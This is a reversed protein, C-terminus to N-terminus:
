WEEGPGENLRDILRRDKKTPRGTGKQRYIGPVARHMELKSKEEDPTMDELYKNVLKASVRNGTPELIKYTYTVPLKRVTVTEGANVVRSPKVQINNILIRGKRCEESAISRTKYIRVAWLFKDIRIEKEEEM